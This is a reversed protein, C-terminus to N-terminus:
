LGAILNAASAELTGVYKHYITGDKNVIFITPTSSAGYNSQVTKGPDLCYPWTSGFYASGPRTREQNIRVATDAPDEFNMDISVFKVGRASYNAYLSVLVPAEDGCYPCDLDMFEVLVPSGRWAAMSVTTNDTSTLTFDTVPRFLLPAFVAVVLLVVAVVGVILLTRRGGRTLTPRGAEKGQRIARLDEEDLTESLDVNEKPHQNRVHRELNEAKVSVECVPCKKTAM